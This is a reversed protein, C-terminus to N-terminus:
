SADGSDHIPADRERLRGGDRGRREALVEALISVAIEEPTEAGLDLGVPSFLRARTRADIEGGSKEIEALLRETRRKPGLVGLYRLPRCLMQALYARDTEFGHSMVLVSTEPGPEIVDAAAEPECVVISSAEPFNEASAFAPRRDCVTVEFGLEAALRAVPKADPGAGLLLLEPFPEVVEIVAEVPGGEADAISVRRHRGSALADALEGALHAALAGDGVRGAPAEDEMQTTRAGIRAPDGAAVVTAIVLRRREALARAVRALHGGDSAEPVRELLVDVRGECGLGLGFILDEDRRADYTVIRPAGGALLPAAREALDAELCGGSVLGVHEGDAGLLMRAGPRRYASGVVGVVTALVGSGGRARLAEFGAVLDRLDRM